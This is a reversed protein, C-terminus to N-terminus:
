YLMLNVLVIIFLVPSLMFLFVGYVIALIGDIIISLMVSSINQGVSSADNFRTIIDGTKRGSLFEFPVKMLHEYFTVLIPINIKKSTKALIFSRFVSLGAQLLYLLIIFLFLVVVSPM